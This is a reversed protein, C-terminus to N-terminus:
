NNDFSINLKFKQGGFNFRVVANEMGGGISTVDFQRLSEGEVQNVFGSLNAMAMIGSIAKAMANCTIKKTDSM